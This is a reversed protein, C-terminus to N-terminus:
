FPALRARRVPRKETWEIDLIFKGERMYKYVNRQKSIVRCNDFTYGLRPDIRDIQWECVTGPTAKEAWKEPHDEWLRRFEEATLAFRIGRRRANQKLANYHYAFPHERAFRRQRCKSCETRGRAAVNRCWNTKCKPRHPYNKHNNRKM